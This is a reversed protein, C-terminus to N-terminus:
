IGFSLRRLPSSFSICASVLHWWAHGQLLAGIFFPLSERWSELIDCFQNDLNWVLFGAVFSLVGKGFM